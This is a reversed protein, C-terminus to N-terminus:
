GGGFHCLFWGVVVGFLIGLHPEFYIRAKVIESISTSRARILYVELIVLVVMILAVTVLVLDASGM